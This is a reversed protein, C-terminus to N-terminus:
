IRHRPQASPQREDHTGFVNQCMASQSHRVSQCGATMEANPQCPWVARGRHDRLQSRVAGGEAADSPGADDSRPGPRVSPSGTGAASPAATPSAAQRTRSCSLCSNSADAPPQCAFAAPAAQMVLTQLAQVCCTLDVSAPRTQVARRSRGFFPDQCRGSGSPGPLGPVLRWRKVSPRCAARSRGSRPWDARCCGIAVM